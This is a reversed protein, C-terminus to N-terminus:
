RYTNTYKHTRIHIYTEIERERERQRAHIWDTGYLRGVLKIYAYTVTLTHLQTLAHIQLFM